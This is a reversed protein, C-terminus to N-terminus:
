PRRRAASTAGSFGGAVLMQAIGTDLLQAILSKRGRRAKKNGGCGKRPMSAKPRYGSEFFPIVGIFVRNYAATTINTELAAWACFALAAGGTFIPRQCPVVVTFTDPRWTGGSSASFIFAAPLGIGPESGRVM